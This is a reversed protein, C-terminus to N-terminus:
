EGDKEICDTIYTIDSVIDLKFKLFKNCHMCDIDDISVRTYDGMTYDRPIYEWMDTITMTRHCWPCLIAVEDM